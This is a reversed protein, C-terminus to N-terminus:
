ECENAGPRQALGAREALWFSAVEALDVLDVRYDGNIDGPLNGRPRGRDTLVQGNGDYNVVWIHYGDICPFYLTSEQNLIGIVDIPGDPCAYRSFGQGIGLKVPFTLGNEDTVTIQSNPAWNEPDAITVNNLRVRRGQYYEPGALRNPDFIFRDSEDKLLDITIEEPAPLGVAPQLLEIAFDFQPDKEHLENINIKGKFFKYYGTVKVRDGAQFVYGSTPDRNIRYLEETLQADTYDDSSSVSSYNQGFWVATGAPDPQGNPDTEGQIFIQWQGGMGVASPTPDLMEEPNNLLIGTIIVKDTAAYTGIGNHDVAQLQRHTVEAVTPNAAAQLSIISLIIGSIVTIRKM